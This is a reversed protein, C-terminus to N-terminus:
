KTEEINIQICDNEPLKSNLNDIQTAASIGCKKCKYVSDYMGPGICEWDHKNEGKLLSIENELKDIHDLLVIVEDSSLYNGNCKIAPTTFNASTTYKNLDKQIGEM